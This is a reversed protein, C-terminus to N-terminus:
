FDFDVTVRYVFNDSTNDFRYFGYRYFVGGGIGLYALGVYNIRYLHRAVLGSELLGKEASKLPIEVHQQVNGLTGFFVQQVLEFTPSFKKSKFLLKGFDHSLSAMVFRDATFEYLQVTQLTGYEYAINGNINAGGTAFLLPYPVNGQVLGGNVLFQATGVYKTPIVHKIQVEYKDLKHNGYATTIGRSYKFAVFPTEKLSNKVKKDRIRMFQEGYAYRIGAQIMSVNFQQELQDNREFLYNYNTSQINKQVAAIQVQTFKIPRFSLYIRQDTQYDLRYIFYNRLSGSVRYEFNTGQPQSLGPELVDKVYNYGIKIDNKRSIQWATEGGYKWQKDRLGYAFYGGATWRNQAIRSGTHLGAGLRWGEAINFRILRNLDIEIWNKIPFRGAVLYDFGNMFNAVPKFTSDLFQHTQAMRKLEATDGIRYKEWFTDPQRFAIPEIILEEEEFQRKKIPKEPFTVDSVYSRSTGQLRVPNKEIIEYNRFFLDTNLQEPFWISDQHLKYQQQIRFGVMLTDAAEAMVQQVAYYRSNIFLTGRLAEFNKNTFPEFTIVFVTDKGEPYSKQLTFDYYSKSNRSIPNVYNKGLVEILDSYFAFPQFSNALVNLSSHPMGSVRNAVVKENRYNPKRFIRNSVTEVLFIYKDQFLKEYRLRTTDPLKLLSNRDFEMALKNYTTCSFSTNNEPNNRKRNAVAAAIIRHAPNNGKRIEVEQLMISTALLRITIKKQNPAITVTKPAYGIYSCSITKISENNQITFNGDIDTTTGQQTGNVVLHVFALPKSSASDIVTGSLEFQAFASFNTCLAIILPLYYNSYM